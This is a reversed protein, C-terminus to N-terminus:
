SIAQNKKGNCIFPRGRIMDTILEKLSRNNGPSMTVMPKGM